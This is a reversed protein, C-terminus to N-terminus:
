VLKNRGGVVVARPSVAASSRFAQARENQYRWSVQAARWNICFFTNGETGFYVFDGQVAPSTGTPADIEVSAIKEGKTLDIVHLKSDCGAVFAREDVITPFCRIQDEITYKWVLAGDAAQLCYLSADQSGFIVRDGIFNASSDIEAQTEFGWKAKGTAADLCYFRGETDGIYVFGNSVAASAAFGLETHFRWKETGDSLRVAYLNGDLSGIYVIGDAVVPTSEFAGQETTFKWLLAPKAPLGSVAAGTALPNARFLPWSEATATVTTAASSSPKADPEAARTAGGDPWGALLAAACVALRLGCRDAITPVAISLPM